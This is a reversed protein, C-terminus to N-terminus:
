TCREDRQSRLLSTGKLIRWTRSRKFIGDAAQLMTIQSKDRPIISILTWPRKPVRSLQKSFGTNGKLWHPCSALWIAAAGLRKERLSKHSAEGVHGAKGRLYRFGINQCSTITRRAKAVVAFAASQGALSNDAADNAGVCLQLTGEPEYEKSLTVIADPISALKVTGDVKATM